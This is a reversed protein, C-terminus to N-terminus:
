PEIQPAHDPEFDSHCANCAQIVGLYAPRVQATNKAKATETLTLGAQQLKACHDIWKDRNETQERLAILNAFEATQLGRDGLTSWAKGDRAESKDVEQKLHEFLPEGFLEMLEHSDVVPHPPKGATTKTQAEQAVLLALPAAILAAALLLAVNRPGRSIMVSSPKRFM